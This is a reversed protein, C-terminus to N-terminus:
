EIVEQQVRIANSNAIDDVSPTSTKLNIKSFLENSINTELCVLTEKYCCQM